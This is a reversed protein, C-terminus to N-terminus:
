QPRKKKHLGEAAVKAVDDLTTGRKRKGVKENGLVENEAIDQYVSAAGMFMQKDWGAEEDFTLAIEEMERVWRYAKPPMGPVSKEANALTAPYFKGIEDKLADLVGLNHATTFSQTAIATFGKSLSAFCMKLGSAAGIDPSIQKMNLVSMLKKGFPLSSFGDSGSIPISPRYWDSYDNSSSSETAAGPSTKKPPTGLICGDVFRIPLNSRRVSAAIVKVTSPAVANLDVFHLERTTGLGALADTIRTATAEADKPPVISLIVSSQRVLEVDSELLEVEADRAREITDKSRGCINTAVNFGNAVLLKAVGVGMDGISLLGIKPLSEVTASM